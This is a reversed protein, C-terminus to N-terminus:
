RSAAKKIAKDIVGVMEDGLIKMVEAKTAEFAPRAAPKPRAGPHFIGRRPQLHPATGFEVLHGVTAHKRGKVPGAATTNRDKDATGLSAILAGTRKSDNAILNTIYADIYPKLAKKRARRADANTPVNALARLARSLPDVGNVPM